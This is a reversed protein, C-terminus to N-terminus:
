ELQKKFQDIQQTRQRTIDDIKKRTTDKISRYSSTDIGERTLARNTAEDIPHPNFYVSFSKYNLVCIIAVVILLGLLTFFGKSNGIRKM